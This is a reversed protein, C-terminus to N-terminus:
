CVHSISVDWRCRVNTRPFLFESHMAVNVTVRNNDAAADGAEGSGTHEGIMKGLHRYNFAIQQRVASIVTVADGLSTVRMDQVHSPLLRKLLHERSQHIFHACGTAPAHIHAILKRKVGKAGPTRRGILRSNGGCSAATRQELVGDIAAQGGIWLHAKQLLV